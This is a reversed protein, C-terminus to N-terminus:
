QDQQSMLGDLKNEATRIDAALALVRHNGSPAATFSSIGAENIKVQGEASLSFLDGCGLAGYYAACPDWSQRLLTEPEVLRYCLKAVGGEKLTRGVFIKEGAEYPAYVIKSPWEDSVRRAAAIDQKINFEAFVPQGCASFNGGMVALEDAKERVLDKGSLPSIGDPRSRLLESLNRQPGVAIVTVKGPAASLARRLVAVADDAAIRDKDPMLSKVRAAYNNFREECMYPPSKMAGVLARTGQERLVAYICHEAGEMTTCSTVARLKILGQRQLNCLLVLAGVDDCDNGIDTDLIIHKM